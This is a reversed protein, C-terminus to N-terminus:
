TCQWEWTLESDLISVAFVLSLTTKLVKIGAVLSGRKCAAYWVGGFWELFYACLETRTDTKANTKDQFTRTPDLTKFTDARSEMPLTSIKIESGM